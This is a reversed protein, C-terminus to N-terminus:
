GISCALTWDYPQFGIATTGVRKRLGPDLWQEVAAVVAQKSAPIWAPMHHPRVFDAGYWKFIRSLELRQLAEDYRAGGGALFARMQHDLQKDVAPGAYPEYRLTPCSASGCVLAGHIRPDGFRRVKGHEIDDLSLAEGAVRVWPRSFAGPVRLVSRDRQLATRAALDLAGANYLNLWFALAENRSLQDPDLAALDDVYAAIQPRQGALGPVGADALVDLVAGLGTHDVSGSGAPRPKAVRQARLMSWGFKLYNPRDSSM